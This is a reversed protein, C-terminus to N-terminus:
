LKIHRPKLSLDRAATAMMSALAGVQKAQDSSANGQMARKYVGQLIAAIRFFSFSLYFHWNTIESRGTRKMYAKVYEDESPVGQPLAVGAFGPVQPFHPPLYYVLCNYALDALPDGITSLEWDLVAM